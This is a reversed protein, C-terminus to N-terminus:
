RCRLRTSVTSQDLNMTKKGGTSADVPAIFENDGTAALWEVYLVYTGKKRKAFRFHGNADAQVETDAAARVLTQLKRYTTDPRESLARQEDDAAQRYKMNSDSLQVQEVSTRGRAVRFREASARFSRINETRRAIEAREAACVADIVTVLSDGPNRALVVTRYAGKTAGLSLDGEVTAGRQCASTLVAGLSVFVTRYRM